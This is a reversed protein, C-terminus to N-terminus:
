KPKMYTLLTKSVDKKPVCNEPGLIKKFLFKNQVWFNKESLMKKVLFEKQSLNKLGLINQPVLFIQGWTKNLIKGLSVM